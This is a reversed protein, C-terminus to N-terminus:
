QKRFSRFGGCGFPMSWTCNWQCRVPLLNLVLVWSKRRGTEYREGLGCNRMHGSDRFLYIACSTWGVGWGVRERGWRVSTKPRIQENRMWFTNKTRKMPNPTLPLWPIVAVVSYFFKERRLLQLIRFEHLVLCCHDMWELHTKKGDIRIFLRWRVRKRKAALAQSSRYHGHHLTLPARSICAPTKTSM